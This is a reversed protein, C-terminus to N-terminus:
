SPQASHTTLPSYQPYYAPLTERTAATMVKEVVACTSRIHEDTLTPHVLFM